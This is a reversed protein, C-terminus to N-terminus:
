VSEGGNFFGVVMNKVKMADVPKLQKYFEIPYQTCDAAIILCYHLSNEPLVAVDGAITMTKNAKIMTDATVDELGSFDIEAIKDGEFDYTKSLKVSLKENKSAAAAKAAAAEEITTVKTTDAM